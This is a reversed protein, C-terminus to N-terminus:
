PTAISAFRTGLLFIEKTSDAVNFEACDNKDLPGTINQTMFEALFNHLIEEGLKVKVEWKKNEKITRHHGEHEISRNEDTQGILPQWCGHVLLEIGM